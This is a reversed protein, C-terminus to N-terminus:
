LKSSKLGHGATRLGIFTHFPDNVSITYVAQVSNYEKWYIDGSIVRELNCCDSIHSRLVPELSYPSVINGSKALLMAIQM